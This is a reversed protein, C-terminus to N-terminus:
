FPALEAIAFDLETLDPALAAAGLRVRSGTSKTDLQGADSDPAGHTFRFGDLAPDIEVLLHGPDVAQSPLHPGFRGLLASGRRPRHGPDQVVDVELAPHPFEDDFGILRQRTAPGFM